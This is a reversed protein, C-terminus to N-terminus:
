RTLGRRPRTRVGAAVLLNRVTTDNVGMERAITARSAGDAYRRIAVQLQADSLARVSNRLEVGHRKCIVSVTKPNTGFRRAIEKIPVGDQYSAVLEVQRNLPLHVQTKPGSTAAEPTNGETAPASVAKPLHTARYALVPRWEKSDAGALGM